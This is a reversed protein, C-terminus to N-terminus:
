GTAKGLRAVAEITAQIGALSTTLTVHGVGPITHVPALRPAGKFEAAFRDAIFQDDEQGVLVEIPRRSAAINTLYDNRPRFNMALAFEYHPTMRPAVETPLAFRTVPLRNFSTIGVANLGLLAAIRPVGVSAWGGSSPRYTASRQSLFPALLLYGDFLRQREGGAIRLVFGGGASFGVLHRPVAPATQAVFDELDEDLQGIHDIHGRQGSEGHGRMDLAHVVHGARALGLALAHMSDSRGASGHILVVSGAATRTAPEYTRYALASGDRAKFRRLAPMASMDQGIFPASVSVMPPLARPGGWALAAAISLAAITLVVSPIITWLM